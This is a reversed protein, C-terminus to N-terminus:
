YERYDRATQNNASAGVWVDVELDDGASDTFSVVNARIYRVPQGHVTAIGAFTGSGGPDTLESDSVTVMDGIQRLPTWNESEMSGELRVEVSDSEKSYERAIVYLSFSVRGGTEVQSGLRTSTAGEISKKQIPRSM